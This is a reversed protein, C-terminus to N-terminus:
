ETAELLAEQEVIFHGPNIEGFALLLIHHIHQQENKFPIYYVMLKSANIFHGLVSRGKKFERSVLIQEFLEDQIYHKLDDPLFPNLDSLTFSLTFNQTKIDFVKNKLEEDSGSFLTQKRFDSKLRFM